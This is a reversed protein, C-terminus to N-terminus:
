FNFVLGSGIAYGGEYKSRFHTDVYDGQIRWYVRPRFKIDVGGGARFGLGSNSGLGAVNSTQSFRFHQLGVLVHAWPEIKSSNMIAIHPGGGVFLSKAKAHLPNGTNGAFGASIDGELGFWNTLYRTISTNFGHTHFSQGLSTFHEYQYGIGLQWASRDPPALVSPSAPASESSTADVAGSFDQAAVGFSLGLVMGCVILLKGM